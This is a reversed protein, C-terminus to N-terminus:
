RRSLGSAALVLNAFYNASLIDVATGRTDNRTEPEVTRHVADVCIATVLDGDHRDLWSRTTVLSELVM